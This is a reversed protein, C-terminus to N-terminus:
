NNKEVKELLNEYIKNLEIVRFSLNGFMAYLVKRDEYNMSTIDCEIFAELADLLNKNIKFRANTQKAESEYDRKCSGGTMQNGEFM